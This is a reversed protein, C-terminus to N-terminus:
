LFYASTSEVLHYSSSGVIVFILLVEAPVAATSMAIRQAVVPINRWCRMMSGISSGLMYRRLIGSLTGLMIAISLGPSANWDCHTRLESEKRTIGM